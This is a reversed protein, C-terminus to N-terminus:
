SAEQDCDAWLLAPSTLSPLRLPFFLPSSLLSLSLFLPRGRASNTM